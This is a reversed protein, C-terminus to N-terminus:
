CNWNNEIYSISSDQVSNYCWQKPYCDAGCSVVILSKMQIDSASKATNWRFVQFNSGSQVTFSYFNSGPLWKMLLNLKITRNFTTRFLETTSSSLSQRKSLRHPLCRWLWLWGWEWPERRGARRVSRLAPLLSGQSRPQTMSLQIM